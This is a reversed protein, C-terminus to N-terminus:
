LYFGVSGGNRPWYILPNVAESQHTRGGTLTEQVTHGMDRLRPSTYRKKM